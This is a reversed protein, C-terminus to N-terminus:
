DSNSRVDELISRLVDNGMMEILENVITPSTYQGEELWKKLNPVDESRTKLLQYLNSELEENGRIAMGQRTLYRLSSLQCLFMDRRIVQESKFEKDLIARVNLHPMRLSEVKEVCESHCHSCGHKHLKELCKEWNCFDGDCFAKETKHYSFSLLGMNSAKRCYFCAITGKTLCYSAWPYKAFVSLTCKRIKVDKGSTTTQKQSTKKLDDETPVFPADNSCCRATCVSLFPGEQVEAENPAVELHDSIPFDAFEENSVNADSSCGEVAQFEASEENCLSAYSSWGDVAVVPTEISVPESFTFPTINSRRPANSFDQREQQILSEHSM